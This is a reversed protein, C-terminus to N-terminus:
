RRDGQAPPAPDSRARRLQVYVRLWDGWVKNDRAPLLHHSRMNRYTAALSIALSPAYKAIRRIKAPGLGLEVVLREPTIIVGGDRRERRLSRELAAFDERFSNM